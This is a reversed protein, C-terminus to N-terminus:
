FFFFFFFAAHEDFWLLMLYRKSSQTHTYWDWMAIQPGTNCLMFVPSPTLHLTASFLWMNMDGSPILPHWSAWPAGWILVTLFYNIQVPVSDMAKKTTTTTKNKNNKQCSILPSSHRIWSHNLLCSWPVRDTRQGSLKERIPAWIKSCKTNTSQVFNSQHKKKKNTQKNTKDGRCWLTNKVLLKVCIPLPESANSHMLYIIVHFLTCQPLRKFFLCLAM